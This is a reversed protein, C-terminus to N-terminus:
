RVGKTLIAMMTRFTRTHSRTSPAPAEPATARATQSRPSIGPSSVPMTGGPVRNGMPSPRTQRVSGPRCIEWTKVDINRCPEQICRIPLM